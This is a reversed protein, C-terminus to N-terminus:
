LQFVSNLENVKDKYSTSQSKIKMDEFNISIIGMINALSMERYATLFVQLTAGHRTRLQWVIQWVAVIKKSAVQELFRRSMGTIRSTELQYISPGRYAFKRIVDHIEIMARDGVIM